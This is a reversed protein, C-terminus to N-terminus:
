GLGRAVRDMRMQPHGGATGHVEPPERTIEHTMSLWAGGARGELPIVISFREGEDDLAELPCDEDLYSLILTTNNSSPEKM